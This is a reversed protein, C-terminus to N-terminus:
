DLEVGGRANEGGSLAARYDGMASQNTKEQTVTGHVTGMPVTQIGGTTRVAPPVWPVIYVTSEYEYEVCNAHM